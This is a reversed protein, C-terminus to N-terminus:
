KQFWLPITLPYPSTLDTNASRVTVMTVVWFRGCRPGAGTYGLPLFGQSLNSDNGSYGSLLSWGHWMLVERMEKLGRSNLHQRAWLGNIGTTPKGITIQCSWIETFNRGTCAQRHYRIYKQVRQASLSRQGCCCQAPIDKLPVYDLPRRGHQSVSRLGLGMVGTLWFTFATPQRESIRTPFWSGCCTPVDLNSLDVPHLWALISVALLQM